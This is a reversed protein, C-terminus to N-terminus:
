WDINIFLNPFQGGVIGSPIGLEFLAFNEDPTLTGWDFAFTVTRRAGNTSGAPFFVTGNLAHLKFFSINGSRFLPAFLVEPAAYDPPATLIIDVTFDPEPPTVRIEDFEWSISPEEPEGVCLSECLSSEDRTYLNYRNGVASLGLGALLAPVLNVPDGDPGVNIYGYGADRAAEILDDFNFRDLPRGSNFLGCALAERREVTLTAELQEVISPDGEGFGAIDFIVNFVPLRRLTPAVFRRLIRDSIDAVYDGRDVGSIIGADIADLTDTAVEEIYELLRLAANCRQGDNLIGFRDDADDDDIETSYLDRWATSDEDTYKWQVVRRGPQGLALAPRIIARMEPTRGDEGDEGAEVTILDRWDNADEDAYKWQIVDTSGGSTFRTIGRLEPTRGDDGDTLAILDRWAAGGEDIYKWEVVRFTQGSTVRTVGRLEPTRGDDGDEVEALDRWASAPEDTYKWQIIDISGDNAFQVFRRMEPTRGAAGASGDDGDTITALERWASGPEDTYKWEIRRADDDIIVTRLEPTRGADGTGGDGCDDIPESGPADAWNAGDDTSVQLKCDFIRYRPPTPMCVAEQPADIYELAALLPAAVALQQGDYILDAGLQLASLIRTLQSGTVCLPVLFVGPPYPPSGRGVLEIGLPQPAPDTAHIPERRSSLLNM